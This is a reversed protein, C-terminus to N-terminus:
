TRAPLREIRNIYNIWTNQLRQLDSSNPPLQVPSISQRKQTKPNHSLTEMGQPSKQSWCIRPVYCVVSIILFLFILILSLVLIELLLFLNTNNYKFFITLTPNPTKSLQAPLLIFLFKIDIADFLKLGDMFFHQIYYKALTSTFIKQFPILQFHYSFNLTM